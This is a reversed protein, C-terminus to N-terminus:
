TLRKVVSVGASSRPTGKQVFRQGQSTDLFLASSVGWVSSLLATIAKLSLQARLDPATSQPTRGETPMHTERETEVRVKGTM